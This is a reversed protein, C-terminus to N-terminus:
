QIISNIRPNTSISRGGSESGFRVLDRVIAGMDNTEGGEVLVVDGAKLNQRLWTCAEEVTTCTVVRKRRGTAAAIASAAASAYEGVLVAVDIPMGALYHGMMTHMVRTQGGIETMKGMVFILRKAHRRFNILSKTSKYFSQPTADHTDDLIHLGPFSHLRGRGEPLTFGTELSNKIIGPPIGLEAAAAYAALANYVDGLSYLAMRISVKEGGRSHITFATGEPGLHQISDAFYDSVPSLGYYLVKGALKHGMLRTYENDRNLIAIGSPSLANLLELKADAIAEIGEYHDLHAEGVNTIIAMRPQILRAATRSEGPIAAGIKLVAWDQPTQIAALERAIEAATDSDGSFEYVRGVKRLIHALMAKVTTKGNSGSIAIFPFTLHERYAEAGTFAQDLMITM